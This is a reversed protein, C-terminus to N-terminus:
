RSAIEGVMATAIEAALRANNLLLAINADLSRGETREAVRALIYPTRERGHIGHRAADREAAEIAPNITEDDLAFAAPIPNM